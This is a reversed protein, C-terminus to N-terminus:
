HQAHVASQRNKMEQILSPLHAVLREIIDLHFQAEVPTGDQTTCMLAAWQGTVDPDFHLQCVPNSQIKRVELHLAAQDIRIRRHQAEQAIVTLYNVANGLAPHSASLNVTTGEAKFGFFVHNGNADIGYNTCGQLERADDPPKAM